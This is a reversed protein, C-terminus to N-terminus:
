WHECIPCKGKFSKETAMRKLTQFLEYPNSTAVLTLGIRKVEPFEEIIHPLLSKWDIDPCREIVTEIHVGFQSGLWKRTVGLGSDDVVYLYEHINPKDSRPTNEYIEGFGSLLSVAMEAMGNYHEALLKKNRWRRIEKENPMDQEPFEKMLAKLAQAASCGQYLEIAKQKLKEPYAM